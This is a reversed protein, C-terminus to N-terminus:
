FLYKYTEQKKNAMKHTFIVYKFAGDDGDESIWHISTHITYNDSDYTCHNLVCHHYFLETVRNMAYTIDVKQTFHKNKQMFMDIVEHPTGCSTACVSTVLKM